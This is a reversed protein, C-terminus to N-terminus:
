EISLSGHGMDASMSIEIDAVGEEASFDDNRIHFHGIEGSSLKQLRIMLAEIESVDLTLSLGVWGSDFKELKADMFDATQSAELFNIHFM